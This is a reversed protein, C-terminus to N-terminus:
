TPRSDDGNLSTWEREIEPARVAIGAFMWFLIAVVTAEWVQLFLGTAAFGIGAGTVSVTLIKLWVDQVKISSLFTSSITALLVVVFLIMSLLGMEVGLQLYWNETGFVTVAAGSVVDAQQSVLGATGLGHGLPAEQILRISADLAEGHARVSGGNPSILEGFADGGFGTGIAFVLALVATGSLVWALKIQSGAYLAMLAVVVMSVAGATRTFTLGITAITVLLFLGAAWQISRERSFFFMAAAVPIVLLQYFSLSLGSLLLSGARPVEANILERTEILPFDGGLVSRAFDSYGLFNFVAISQDPAVWQLASVAAIVTGIPVFALMLWRVHRPSRLQLGRGVFYALLPFADQRFGMMRNMLNSGSESGPYAVYLLTLAIFALILLDLGYVRPAKRNLFADHTVRAVLVLLVADKWLQSGRLLMESDNVSFALVSLFRSLPLLVVLAVAAGLPWRWAAYCILGGLMMALGTASSGGASFVLLFLLVFGVSGIIIFGRAVGNLSVPPGGLALSRASM